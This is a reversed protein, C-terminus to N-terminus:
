RYVGPEVVGAYYLLHAHTYDRHGTITRVRDSGLKLDTGLFPKFKPYKNLYSGSQARVLGILTEAVIRGGVPGLSQGNNVTRAEALVYYWLPTKTAFPAYVGGIEALDAKTLSDVKMLEALDQGSPTAWTLQRLLNRQALSVPSKETGPAISPIPLKFLINTLKTDIKRNHMVQGDGFDFYTQWGIYRRKAPYGGLTDDRDYSTNDDYKSAPISKHDFTLAYFPKKHPNSSEGTGSTFNVRYSSDVQSHGFRYAGSGFEIPMFANGKPPNYYRNGNELIDDVLSQGVLQPLHENVILWHYHWLLVEKAALYREHGSSLDADKATPIHSLDLSKLDDLVRNYAKMYGVVLGELMLTENNRPDATVTKYTGKGDAVYPMSEYVGGTGIRLKPGVTGSKNDVYLDPTHGPGGGFLIDLDLAASRENPSILPNAPAGLVTTRDFTVDHDIFQGFFTSGQTMTPNYPNSGYQDSRTPTGNVKDDLLLREPGASLDEKADMIGGIRGVEELAKRVADNPEAFPKARLSPFMIGFNKPNEPAGKHAAANRATSSAGDTAEKKDGHASCGAVAM